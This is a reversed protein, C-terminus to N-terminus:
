SWVVEGDAEAGNTIPADADVADRRADTVIAFRGELSAPRHIMYSSKYKPFVSINKRLPSSLFNTIQGDPLQAAPTTALNSPVSTKYPTALAVSCYIGLLAQCTQDTEEVFRYDMARIRAKAAHFADRFAPVEMLGARSAAGPRYSATISGTAERALQFAFAAQKYTAGPLCHRGHRKRLTNSRGVCLHKTGESFLYVGSMPMDRPLAGAKVPPRVLLDALKPALSEVFRAFKPDM